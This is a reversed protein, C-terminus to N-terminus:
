YKWTNKKIMKQKSTEKNEHTFTPTHTHIIMKKKTFKKSTKKKNLYIANKKNNNNNDNHKLQLNSSKNM